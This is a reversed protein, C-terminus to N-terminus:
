GKMVAILQNLHKDQSRPARWYNNYANESLTKVVDDSQMLAVVDIISQDHPSYTYGNVKDEIHDRAACVNSCLVPVGNALAELVVLGDAEYWVSPFILARANRIKEIVEKPSLWGLLEVGENALQKEIAPDGSGVHKIKLTPFQSKIKRCVAMHGKEPSVRGVMLFYSNHEAMARDTQNVEIPNEVIVPTKKWHLFRQVVERNFEGLCVAQSYQLIHKIGKGLILHRIYRWLKYIYNRSDCNTKLCAVSGPTLTCISQQQYNYYGGNPCVLFYDHNWVLTNAAHEKLAFFVSPSLCKAWGHVIIKQFKLNNLLKKLAAHVQFDFLGLLGAKLKNKAKLYEGSGICHIKIEPRLLRADVDNQSDGHVFEVSYGADALLVSQAIAIKALGGTVSAHDSIIVIPESTM